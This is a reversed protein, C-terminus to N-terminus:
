DMDAQYTRQAETIPKGDYYVQGNRFTVQGSAIWKIALPYIQHEVQHVRQALTDSTDRRLIPVSAQIIVPGADLEPTVYHVSAGHETEGEDIARQHTQLGQYKPLLSPHINIMRGAYHNVFTDTLIRMFGALVLLDPAYADITQMLTADFAERAQYNKYDVVHVPINAREARRIGYAQPRDSIVAAIKVPLKNARVQDIIAQLNTGNGSILVVINFNGRSM